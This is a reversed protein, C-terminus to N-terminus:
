SRLVFDNVPSDMSSQNPPVKSLFLRCAEWFLLSYSRAVSVVGSRLSRAIATRPLGTASIAILSVATLSALHLAVSASFCEGAVNAWLVAGAIRGQVSRREFKDRRRVRASGFSDLRQSRLVPFYWLGRGAMKSIM